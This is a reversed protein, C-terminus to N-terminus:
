PPSRLKALAQVLAIHQAQTLSAVLCQSVPEFQLTASGGHGRFQQEGLTSRLQQVLQDGSRQATVLPSAPYVEVEHRAALVAPTVVQLTREDVVRWTLDLPRLLELLAERLPKDKAVLTAEVEPGSGAERASQWDVVIRLDSAEGLRRLIKVLPTPHFFNLTVPAALKADARVARPELRFLSRDYFTAPSLSRAVRLMELMRVIEFGTREFQEVVLTQQDARISAPGTPKWSEPEVTEAILQQLSAVTQTRGAALDAVDYRFTRVGSEARSIVVGGERLLPELRLPKCVSALIGGVTTNAEQVRVPQTVAVRMRTLADVDLTIPVTSFDTLVQVLDLLPGDALEIAPLPDSLRAGVDVQRPAPRARPENAPPKNPDDPDLAPGKALAAAGEPSDNTLGGFQRLAATLTSLETTGLLESGRAPQPALNGPGAPDAPSVPAPAPAPKEAAAPTPVPPLEPPAAPEDSPKPAAAPSPDVPVAPAAPPAPSTDTAHSEPTSPDVHAVPERTGGSSTFLIFLGVATAIGVLAALSGVIWSRVVSTPRVLWGVAAQLTTAVKASVGPAASAATESAVSTPVKAGVVDAVADAPASAAASLDVPGEAVLPEPEAEVPPPAIAAAARPTREPPWLPPALPEPSSAHTDEPLCPVDAQTRGREDERPPLVLPPLVLPATAVPRAKTTKKPPSAAQSSPADKAPPLTPASLKEAPLKATVAKTPKAAPTSSSKPPAESSSSGFLDDVDDFQTSLAQLAPLAVNPRPSESPEAPGREIRADEIEVFSGCKACRLVQGVASRDPVQLRAHCTECSIFLPQMLGLGELTM